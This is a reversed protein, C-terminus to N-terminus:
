DRSRKDLFRLDFILLMVKIMAVNDMITKTKDNVIDKLEDIKNQKVIVVKELEDIKSQLQNSENLHNRNIEDIKKREEEEFVSLKQSLNEIDKNLYYIVSDKKRLGEESRRIIEEERESEMRKKLENLKFEM